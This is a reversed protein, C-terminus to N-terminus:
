APDAGTAGASPLPLRVAVTTGVGEESDIVVDGGHQAVLHRVSALGIGMGAFGTANTARGFPELVRPLEDAPIGIGPDRVSLVATDGERRVEVEVLGGAPSYKLANGVLNDLVRALRRQDWLGVLAHAACRLEVRHRETAAQHQAAAATALAVLDTPRRDLALLRGLRLQALDVLEDLMGDIRRASAHIHGTAELLMPAADARALQSRLLQAYGQIVTVPSKLDHTLTALFADRQRELEREVTVDHMTLVAGLRSGDEALVPAASGQLVSETGDPRRVRWLAGVVTEGRVVARALPLEDPPYPRGDMTLLGYAEAYREVTVGLEALGHMRRAAENVFTIRGAADTLIVGEVAQGLILAQEAALREAKRRALLLEREYTKRDTAELLLSAVLAPRGDAGLRQVSSVLVPLPEGDERRLDFAVEKVFGQLHLLPAYQNEYFLKGPVTLFDQFRAGAALGDEVRGVWALFTQNARVISGDPRMFVYGGPAHEYLDGLLESLLGDTV